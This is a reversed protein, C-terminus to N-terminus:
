LVRKVSLEGRHQDGSLAIYSGAEIRKQWKNSEYRATFISMRLVPEGDTRATDESWTWRGFSWNLIYRTPKGDGNVVEGDKGLPTELEAPRQSSYMVAKIRYVEDKPATKLLQGLKQLDIAANADSAANLTISLCEMEENHDHKHEGQEHHHHQDHERKIWDDAMKSDLGFLLDKSLWGRDSKVVPTEVDMDGLRDLCQEYKIEGVDEWKNMVIMDTQRAQLKATFSTSAYGGWNEVDIVSVIGDLEYRGTEAALRKIELMLKIPEASGSTEIIVRDPAYEADLQALSDGIQGVNTCCICAGLLESVGTMEAASALQTDIALDGIENKILALKYSPNQARLQPILNLILTTKGSGVFGTIITIPIRKTGAMIIIIIISSLSHQPLPTYNRQLNYSRFVTKWNSRKSPFWSCLNLSTSKESNCPCSISAGDGYVTYVIDPARPLLSRSSTAPETQLTQVRSMLGSKSQYNSYDTRAVPVALKM